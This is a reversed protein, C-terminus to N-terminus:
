HAPAIASGVVSARARFKPKSGSSDSAAKLAQGSNVAMPSETTVPGVPWFRRSRRRSMASFPQGFRVSSAAKSAAAPPLSSAKFPWPQVRRPSRFFERSRFPVVEATDPRPRSGAFSCSFRYQEATNGGSPSLSFLGPHFGPHSIQAGYPRQSCRRKRGQRLDREFGGTLRWWFNRGDMRRNQLNIGRKTCLLRMGSFYETGAPGHPSWRM